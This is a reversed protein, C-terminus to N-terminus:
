DKKYCNNNCRKTTIDIIVNYIQLFIFAPNNWREYM